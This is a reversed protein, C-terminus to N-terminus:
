SKRVVRLSQQGRAQKELHSVRLQWRLKEDEFHSRFENLEAALEAAAYALARTLTKEAKLQGSLLSIKTNLQAHRKDQAEGSLVQIRLVVGRHSRYLASRSLHAAVAVSTVTPKNADGARWQTMQFEFVRQILDNKSPM